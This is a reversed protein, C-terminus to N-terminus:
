CRKCDERKKCKNCIKANWVKECKLLKQMRANKSTRQLKQM